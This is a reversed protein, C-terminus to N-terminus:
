LVRRLAIAALTSKERELCLKFSALTHRRELEAIEHEVRPDSYARIRAVLDEDTVALMPNTM